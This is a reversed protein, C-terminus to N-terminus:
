QERDLLKFEFRAPHVKSFELCEHIACHPIGADDRTRSIIVFM